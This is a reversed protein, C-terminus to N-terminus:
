TSYLIKFLIFHSFRKSVALKDYRNVDALDRAIETVMYWGNFPGCPFRLGGLDIMM